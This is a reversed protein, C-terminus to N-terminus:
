MPPTKRIRGSPSRPRSVLDDLRRKIEAIEDENIAHGLGPYIREVVDGGLARLIDASERVRTLPIYPDVDSSGIFVPTAELSGPYGDRRITEGILGGTLAIVAGYRDPYRAAFELALCAGQSFGLIATQEPLIDAVILAGLLDGIVNLASTLGPENDNVPAMFPQPYWVRGAAEPALYAIDPRGFADALRIIDGAGAGRGHMMIMAAKAEALAAGRHLITQGKHPDSSAAM